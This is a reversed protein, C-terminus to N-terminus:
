SQTVGELKRRKRGNKKQKQSMSEEMSSSPVPSAHNLQSSPASRQQDETPEGPRKNKNKNKKKQQLAEAPSNESMTAVNSSGTEEQSVHRGNNQSDQSLLSSKRPPPKPSANRSVNSQAPVSEKGKDNLHKLSQKIKALERDVYDIEVYPLSNLRDTTRNVLGSVHQINNGFDSTSKQLDDVKDLLDIIESRSKELAEVQKRTTEVDTKLTEFAPFISNTQDHLDAETRTAKEDLETFAGVLSEHQNQLKKIEQLARIHEKLKGQAIEAVQNSLQSLQAPLQELSELRTNFAEPQLQDVKKKIEKLAPIEGAFSERLADLQERVEGMSPYLEEMAHLMNKVVNETTLNNYRLELSRTSSYLTELTDKSELVAQELDSIKKIQPVVQEQVYRFFPM